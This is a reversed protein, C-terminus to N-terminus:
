KKEETGVPIISVLEMGYKTTKYEIQASEKKTVFEKATKAFTESFTTIKNDGIHLTYIPSKGTGRDRKTVSDILCTIIPISEPQGQESTTFESEGVIEADLPPADELEEKAYLGLIADPCVRRLGRTVARWYLMDQPYKEWGGQAKWIGAQKAEPISFSSTFQINGSKFFIECIESTHKKIEYTVGNRLAIALMMQGAMCIKGQVISMTQLATMPGVGLEHGYQVIAYAGFENKVAPFIGSKFLARAVPYLTPADEKKVLAKSEEM